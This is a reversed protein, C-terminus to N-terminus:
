AEVIKINFNLAKGALPHNMDLTIEEDGMRTVKAPMERGDPTRVLIMMGEQIDMNAQIADKPVQQSLNENYEGYAESPEIRFEKEDGEDMGRVAEEFGSIVQGEGVTFELPEGHKESSDFVSGDDLKGTYDIKITDGDKISM